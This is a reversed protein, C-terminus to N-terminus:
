TAEWVQAPIGTRSVTCLREGTVRALNRKRLVSLRKQLLIYDIGTRESLERATCNSWRRLANLIMDCQSQLRGSNEVYDAGRLSSRPDTTRALPPSTPKM